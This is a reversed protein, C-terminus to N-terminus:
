PVLTVVALAILVVNRAVTAWTIPRVARGFCACPPADGASMRVLLLGTYILLLGLAAVGALRVGAVLAAGVILELAPTSQTLAYPIALATSTERAWGRHSLK